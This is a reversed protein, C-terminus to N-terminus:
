KTSEMAECENGPYEVEMLAEEVEPVFLKLKELEKAVREMVRQLSWLEIALDWADKPEVVWVERPLCSLHVFGYGDVGKVCYCSESPPIAELCMRCHTTFRRSKSFKAFPKPYKIM